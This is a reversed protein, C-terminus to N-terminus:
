EVNLICIGCDNIPCTPPFPRVHETGSANVIPPRRKGTTSSLRHRSRTHCRIYFVQHAARGGPYSLTQRRIPWPYHPSLRVFLCSSCRRSRRRRALGFRRGFFAAHVEVCALHEDLDCRPTYYLLRLAIM